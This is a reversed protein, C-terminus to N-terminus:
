LEYQIPYLLHILDINTGLFCSFRSKLKFSHLCTTLFSIDSCSSRSLQLQLRFLVPVPSGDELWTMEFLVAEAWESTM